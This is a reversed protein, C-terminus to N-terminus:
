RGVLKKFYKVTDEAAWDIAGIIHDTIIGDKGIVFTEPFRYVGYLAQVEAEPDLLITFSHPNDKLFDAVNDQGDEEVNIALMVFKEGALLTQLKEMSPMETRCPPCWTAWFNVLVVQGRYSALDVTKGQLNKLAFNPALTGQVVATTKLEPRSGGAFAPSFLPHLFIACGLIVLSIRM